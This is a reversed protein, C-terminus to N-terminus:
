GSAAHSVWVPSCVDFGPRNLDRLHTMQAVLSLVEILKRRPSSGLCTLRVRCENRLVLPDSFRFTVGLAMRLTCYARCGIPVAVVRAPRETRLNKLYGGRCACNDM